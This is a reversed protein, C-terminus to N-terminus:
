SAAASRSSAALRRLRPYDTPDALLDAPTAGDLSQVPRHFWRMMGPGTYAHRLHAVAAAVARVRAADDGAPATPDITSVWRQLTRHSVGLLAAVESQPVDLADLLLRAVEAAPRDDRVPASEVIDRLAQRMQELGVRLRRRRATLDEVTLASLCLVAGGLLVEAHSPDIGAMGALPSGAHLTRDLDKVLAVVPDPVSPDAALARGAAAVEDLLTAAEAEFTATADRDDSCALMVGVTAAVSERLSSPHVTSLVM